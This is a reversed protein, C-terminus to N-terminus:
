YIIIELGEITSDLTIDHGTDLWEEEDIGAIDYGHIVILTWHDM